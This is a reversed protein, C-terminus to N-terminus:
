TVLERLEDHLAPAAAVVGGDGGPGALRSVRAGAEGAILAGAAWDWRSTSDEYYGDVRGAALWCLDLAASGTRRIDRVRSLVRAVVQAQRRRHEPDYSFGTAILAQELPVPDNVALRRGDLHAGAGRAASFTEERDPDHVVGVLTGRDDECAVSVAWSPFRYLYNVTGDLPDIVWRLGSTGSRDDREEAVVGDHPRARLVAAVLVEEAARDAESVPDTASSKLDVRGARGQRRRLETGAARAAHEALELLEDVAVPARSPEVNM